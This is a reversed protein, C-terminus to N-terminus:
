VPCLQAAGNMSNQCYLGIWFAFYGSSLGRQLQPTGSQILGEIPWRLAPAIYLIFWMLIIPIPVMAIRSLQLLWQVQGCSLQQILCNSGYGLVTAILPTFVYPGLWDPLADHAIFKADWALMFIGIAIAVLLALVIRIGSNVGSTKKPDISTVKSADAM